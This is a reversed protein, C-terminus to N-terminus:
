QGELELNPIAFQDRCVTTGVYVSIDQELLMHDTHVLLPLVHKMVGLVARTCGPLAAHTLGAAHGIM